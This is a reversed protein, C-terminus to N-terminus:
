RNGISLFTTAQAVGTLETILPSDAYSDWLLFAQIINNIIPCAGRYIWALPYPTHGGAGGMCCISTKALRAHSWRPNKVFSDKVRLPTPELCRRGLRDTTFTM